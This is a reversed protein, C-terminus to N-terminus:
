EDLMTERSVREVQDAGTRTVTVFVRGGSGGQQGTRITHQEVWGRRIAKALTRHGRQVTWGLMDTIATLQADGCVEGAQAAALMFADVDSDHRAVRGGTSMPPPSRLPHRVVTEVMADFPGRM